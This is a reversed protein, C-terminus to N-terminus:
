ESKNVNEAPRNVCMFIENRDMIGVSCGAAIPDIGNKVMESVTNVKNVSVAAVSLTITAILLVILATVKLIINNV